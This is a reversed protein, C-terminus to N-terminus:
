EKDKRVRDPRSHRGSAIRHILFGTLTGIAVGILDIWVDEISAGRGSLLQVSEDLFAAAFGAAASRKVNGRSWLTLLASFITFEAVHAIKRVTHHSLPNMGFFRLVPNLVKETLWGSEAASTSQPLVSQVFIFALTLIVAVPLIRRGASLSEKM